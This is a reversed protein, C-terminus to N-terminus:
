GSCRCSRGQAAPIMADVSAALRKFLEDRSQVGELIFTLDPRIYPQLAM